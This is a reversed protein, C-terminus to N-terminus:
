PFILTKKSKARAVILGIHWTALVAPARALPFDLLGVRGFDSVCVELITAMAFFFFLL